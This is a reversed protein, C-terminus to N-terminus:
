IVQEFRCVVLFELSKTDARGNGRMTSRGTVSENSNIKGTIALSRMSQHGRAPFSSVVGGGGGGGDCACSQVDVGINFNNIVNNDVNSPPSSAAATVGPLFSGLSSRIGGISGLRGRIGDAASVGTSAKRSTIASMFMDSSSSPPSLSPRISTM